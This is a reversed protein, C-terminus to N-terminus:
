DTYQGQYWYDDGGDDAPTHAMTPEPTMRYGQWLETTHGARWCWVALAIIATLTAIGIIIMGPM